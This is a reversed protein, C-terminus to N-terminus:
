LSITWLLSVWASSDGGETTGNLRLKVTGLETLATVGISGLMWTDDANSMMLSFNSGSSLGNVASNRESLQQYLGVEGTVAMSPNIEYLMNLGARGEISHDNRSAYVAPAAGGSESYGHVQSEIFSLDVYPSFKCGAVAFSNEWDVRARFASTAVDTEGKSNDTALGTNYARMIEADSQNYYGTLTMWANSGLVKAPLILEGLLYDGRLKQTGGLYTDHDSWSKGLGIGLQIGSSSLVRSAGIEAIGLSGDRQAYQDEGWDGGVWVAYGKGPAVRYDMPHGHLGHLVMGGTRMATRSIQAQETLSQEDLRIRLVLHLTSEKLINYDALTRGDELQKGAFILRQQDPPIGEKDQIKQKVNEISDSSDVDLTITKGTLTKVFIQMSADAEPVLAIGFIITFLWIIKNM